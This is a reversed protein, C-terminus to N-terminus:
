LLNKSVLDWTFINPYFNRKTDPRDSRLWSGISIVKKKGCVGVQETGARAGAVKLERM